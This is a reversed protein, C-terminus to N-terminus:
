EVLPGDKKESLSNEQKAVRGEPGFFIGKAAEAGGGLMEPEKGQYKVFTNNGNGASIKLEKEAEFSQTAGAALTGSYVINGDAEVSLWTPSQQVSVELLFRGKRARELEQASDTIVPAEYEAYVSITQTAEKDFKNRARVSITNLGIQLGVDESFEGKDNVMVAEDNISVLSDKEAVGSVHVSNAQVKMGDAPRLVALRPTSVFSNVELYLYIFSGIIVVAGIAAFLLQPTIAFGTIKLPRRPQCPESIKEITRHIGQEREYQRILAREDVGMYNAFSRLFGKVYVDAPLKAYDGEELSELYRAQIKTGKAVDAVALRRELRMKRLKEGLTLSEIKKKTFRVM